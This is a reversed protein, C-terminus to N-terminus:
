TFTLACSPSLRCHFPLPLEKLSLSLHLRSPSLSCSLPLSLYSLVRGCCVVVADAVELLGDDAKVEVEWAGAAVDAVAAMGEGFGAEESRPLRTPEMEMECSASAALRVAVWDSM